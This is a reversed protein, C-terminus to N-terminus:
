LAKKYRKIMENMGWLILLSAIPSSMYKSTCTIKFPSHLRHMVYNFYTPFNMM